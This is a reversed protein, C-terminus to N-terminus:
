FALSKSYWELCAKAKKLSIGDDNAAGYHETGFQAM